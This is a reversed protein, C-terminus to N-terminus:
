IKIFRLRYISIHTNTLLLKIYQDSNVTYVNEIKLKLEAKASFLRVIFNSILKSILDGGTIVSVLLFCVKKM